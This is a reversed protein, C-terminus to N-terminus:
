TNETSPETKRRRKRKPPDATLEPEGPVAEIPQSGVYVAHGMDVLRAEVDSAFTHVSGEALEENSGSVIPHRTGLNLVLKVTM